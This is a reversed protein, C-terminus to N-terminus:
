SRLACPPRETHRRHHAAFAVHDDGGHPRLGRGRSQVGAPLANRGEKHARAAYIVLLSYFSTRTPLTSKTTIGGDEERGRSQALCFLRVLPFGLEAVKWLETVDRFLARRPRAVAGSGGFKLELQSPHKLLVARHHAVRVAPMEAPMATGCSARCGSHPTTFVLFISWLYSLARRTTVM